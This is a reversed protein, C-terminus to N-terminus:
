LRENVAFINVQWPMDGCEFPSSASNGLPALRYHFGAEDLTELIHGLTGTGWSHYECFLRCVRNLVPKLSPLVVSEAGEIDMKLLDVRKEDALLEALEVSSVRRMAEGTAVRGGDAGDSDFAVGDSHVWVAAKHLAVGTMLGNRALNRHLYGFVNEDPEFATVRADPYLMKFYAASVGVNAGCDYVVPCSHACRFFYSSNRFIDVYQWFFSPADPVDFVLGKFQVNSLPRHRERRACASYLRLFERGEATALYGLRRWIKAFM